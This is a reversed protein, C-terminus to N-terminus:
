ILATQTSAAPRRAVMAASPSSGRPSCPTPSLRPGLGPRPPSRPAPRAMLSPYRLSPSPRPPFALLSRAQVPPSRQARPASAM